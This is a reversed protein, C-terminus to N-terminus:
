SGKEIMVWGDGDSSELLCGEWDDVILSLDAEFLFSAALHHPSWSAATAEMLERGSPLADDLPQFLVSHLHHTTNTHLVYM